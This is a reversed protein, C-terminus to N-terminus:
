DYKGDINIGILYYRLRTDVYDGGFCIIQEKPKPSCRENFILLATRKGGM